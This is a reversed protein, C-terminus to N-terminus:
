WLNSAFNFASDRENFAATYINACSKENILPTVKVHCDADKKTTYFWLYTLLWKYILLLIMDLVM